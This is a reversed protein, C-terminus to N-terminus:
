IPVSRVSASHTSGLAASLCGPLVFFVADGINYNGQLSGAVIYVVAVVVFLAGLTGLWRRFRYSRAVM